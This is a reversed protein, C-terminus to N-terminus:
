SRYRQMAERLLAAQQEFRRCADCFLLHLRLEMRRVLSLREDLQRSVLKSAEKCNLMHM